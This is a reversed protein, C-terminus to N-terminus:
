FQSATRSPSSTRSGASGRSSSTRSPSAPRTLPDEDPPDEDDFTQWAGMNLGDSAANRAPSGTQLSLDGSAPNTYLPDQAWIDHDGFTTAARWSTLGGSSLAYSTANPAYAGGESGGNPRYLLNYDNTHNTPYSGISEYDYLRSDVAYVLVNDTITMDEFTGGYQGGTRFRIGGRNAGHGSAPGNTIYCSNHRIVWGPTARCLILPATPDASPNIPSEDMQDIEGWIYNRYVFLQGNDNGANLNNEDTGSEIWAHGDHFDNWAVINWSDGGMAYPDLGTGDINYDESGMRDDYNEYIHNNWMAAHVTGKAFASAEGGVDGNAPVGIGRTNENNHHLVCGSFGFQTVTVTGSAHAFELPFEDLLTGLPKDYGGLTVTSGNIATIIRAEVTADNDIRLMEGVAIGTTTSLVATTDGASVAGNLTTSVRAGESGNMRIGTAAGQVESNQIHCGDVDEFFVGNGMFHEITIGDILSNHGSLTGAAGGRRIFAIASTHEAAGSNEEAADDPWGSGILDRFTFATGSGKKIIVSKPNIFLWIFSGNSDRVGGGHPIEFVPSAGAVAEFTVRKSQNTGNPLGRTDIRADNGTWSGTMCFIRDGDVVSAHRYAYQPTKWPAGSSTGAAADSGTPSIYWDSM